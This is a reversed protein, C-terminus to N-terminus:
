RRRSASVLTAPTPDPVEDPDVERVIRARLCVWDEGEVGGPDRIVMGEPEVEYVYCDTEPHEDDGLAAMAFMVAMELSTTMHVRRSHGPTIDPYHDMGVDRGPLLMTGVPLSRSTGHYYTM